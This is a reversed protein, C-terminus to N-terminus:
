PALSDCSNSLDPFAGCGGARRLAGGAELARKANVLANKKEFRRCRSTMTAVAPVPPTYMTWVQGTATDVVFGQSATGGVQYRGLAPSSSSAGLALMAIIGTLLGILASKIDIQKKM